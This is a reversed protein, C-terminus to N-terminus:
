CGYYESIDLIRPAPPDTLKKPIWFDKLISYETDWRISKLLLDRNYYTMEPLKNECINICWLRSVVMLFVWEDKFSPVPCHIAVYEKSCNFIEKVMLALQSTPKSKISGANMSIAGSSSLCRNCEKLLINMINLAEDTPDFLDIFICDFKENCKLIWEFADSIVVNVRPDDYSNSNWSSGSTKFYSILTEDWDVQTVKKVPWKLVERLMCGESGGLILVNSPNRCGSMLSHVFSEHYIVEDGKCSQLTNNIFLHESGETDLICWEQLSSKNSIIEEGTYKIPNLPDTIEYIIKM